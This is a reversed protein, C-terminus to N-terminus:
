LRLQTHLRPRTQKRPVAMAKPERAVTVSNHLFCMLVIVTEEGSNIVSNGVGPGSRTAREQARLSPGSARACRAHVRLIRLKAKALLPVSSAGRPGSM